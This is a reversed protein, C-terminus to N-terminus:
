DYSVVTTGNPANYYIWRASELPLRVCGHTIKMGLRGDFVASHEAKISTGNPRYYAISHFRQGGLKNDRFTTWYFYDPDNGMVYGRNSIYTIGRFTRGLKDNGVGCVWDFVPTWNGKSGSFVVTHCNTNDIAFIYRSTSGVNKIKEWARYAVYSWQSASGNADYYYYGGGSKVWGNVAVATLHWDQNASGDAVAQNVNSGNSSGTLNLAMDSHRNLFIVNGGDGIKVDWAQAGTGNKDYQQVNAGSATSGNLVDLAKGSAVNTIVYGGNLYTVYFKQAVSNNDAYGQVNAGSATSAGAVDMALGLASTFKYAGNKILQAASFLFHQADTGNAEYTQVKAGNATSGGYIDMVYNKGTAEMAGVNVLSFFSGNWGLAWKQYSSRESKSSGEQVVLGNSSRTLWGGSAATRISITGDGNNVVEFRQALTDNIDYLQAQTGSKNSASPIDMTKTTRSNFNRISYIGDAYADIKELAFRQAKTGNQRYTNLNGGNGTYGGYVDMALGNAKNVFTYTGDENQVIAWKQADTGNYDWQQINGGPMFQAGSVDLTKGTGVVSITYLGDSERHLYFRQAGTGNSDWTQANAGSNWSGGYIDVSKNNGISAKISYTGDALSVNSKVDHVTPLLYFKQANTGNSQYIEVNTGSRMGAAYLDLVYKDDLHSVFTYALGNQVIDWLQAALGITKRGLQVNACNMALGDRVEFVLDTGHKAVYYGKNAEDYTIDWKQAASGNFSYTQVNTGPTNGNAVADIVQPDTTGSEIVYTGDAVTRANEEPKADESANASSDSDTSNAAGGAPQAKSDAAGNVEDATTTEEQGAVQAADPTAPTAKEDSAGQVGNATATSTANSPDSAPSTAETGQSGETTGSTPAAQATAAAVQDSTASASAAEQVVAQTAAGTVDRALATQPLVVAMTCAGASIMAALAAKPRFASLRM